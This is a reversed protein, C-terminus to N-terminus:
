QAVTPNCLMLTPNCLMVTPNCLMVADNETVATTTAEDYASIM